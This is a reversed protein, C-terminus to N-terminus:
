PKVQRVAQRAAERWARDHHASPGRRHEELARELAELNGCVYSVGAAWCALEFRQQAASQRGGIERKAEWWLLGYKPHLACVDPVGPDQTGTANRQGIRWTQYGHLQLLRIGLRQERAEPRGTM